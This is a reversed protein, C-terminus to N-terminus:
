SMNGAYYMFYIKWTLICSETIAFDLWSGSGWPDATAHSGPDPGTDPDANLQFAPGSGCPDPVCSPLRRCGMHGSQCFLVTYIALLNPTRWHKFVINMFFLWCELSSYLLEIFNRVNKSPQAIETARNKTERVTGATYLFFWREIYLTQTHFKQYIEWSATKQKALSETIKNKKSLFKFIKTRAVYM